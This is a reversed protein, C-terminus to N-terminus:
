LVPAGPAWVEFGYQVALDAIEELKDLNIYDGLSYNVFKEDLTLLITEALSAYITGKPLDAYVGLHQQFPLKILGLQVFTIDDRLGSKDFGNCFSPIYCLVANTKLDQPNFDVASKEPCSAKVVIDASTVAKRVDNEVVVEIDAHSLITSRLKELKATEKDVLIIKGAYDSLKRAFLGLAIGAAGMIAVSSKKLDIKKVRAVRYVGEFVAWATLAHGSTVPIKLNKVITGYEKDAVSATFCDLGTIKAGLKDAMHGASIVRDLVLEEGSLSSTQQSLLPSLILFGKTEKKQSSKIPKLRLVRLGPLASVFMKILFSPIFRSAPWLKKLQKINVPSVIFAFSKM